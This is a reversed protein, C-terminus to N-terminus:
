FTTLDYKPDLKRVLLVLAYCCIFYVVAMATYLAFPALDRNNVLVVARFFDIMGIVYVLSTIKFLMVFNAIFAPVMNRLAQPLVIYLFIQRSNLGTVYASETQVKHVSTLGARVIEALYAAAIM